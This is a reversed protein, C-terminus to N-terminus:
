PSRSSLLWSDHRDEHRADHSVGYNMDIKMAIMIVFLLEHRDEHYVGYDMAITM